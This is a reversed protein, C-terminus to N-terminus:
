LTPESKLNHGNAAQTATEQEAFWSDTKFTKWLPVSSRKQLGWGTVIGKGGDRQRVGGDDAQFM